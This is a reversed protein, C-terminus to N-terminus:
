AEKEPVYNFDFVARRSITFTLVMKWPGAIQLRFSRIICDGTESERVGFFGSLSSFVEGWCLSLGLARLM